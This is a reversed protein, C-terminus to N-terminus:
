LCASNHPLRYILEDRLQGGRWVSSPIRRERQFGMRRCFGLAGRNDADFRAHLSLLKLEDFATKLIADALENIIPHRRIAPHTVGHLEAQEGHQVDSLAAIGWVPSNDAHDKADRIVWLTPMCSLTNSLLMADAMSEWPNSRNPLSDTFCHPNVAVFKRIGDCQWDELLTDRFLGLLAQMGPLLKGPLLASLQAADTLREICLTSAPDDLAIADIHVPLAPLRVM